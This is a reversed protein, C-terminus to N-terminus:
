RIGPPLRGGLGRMMKAMGGRSMKKMMKQAQTFQKLLRNLEQVQVGSGNAIRRRRSGNIIAPHRRENPTMSDIMAIQRRVSQDNMQNKVGAQLKDAGPLKDIMAGIGGMAQMQRLQDRFDVLDFGKGKKLKNALKEAQERDVTREAEEVLTLVDGKGLIRSAIREPHFRELADLKEGVGLFQIPKGTVERISLAAGGRADGDAKTLVVGTLPLTEDFTRAVNVADQGAMADAVFLTEAPEIAAHIRKIEDMLEGDVHLRGATDVILVDVMRRRADELAARAIKVPDDSQPRISEAGVQAAVRELQDIAAPRYVDASVLLSKKNRERALWGALKAVTTTKGAGQLGAMLIVTPPSTRTPFEGSDGGLVATLEEHVAKVLVQGPNLSRVVERGLARVRIRDILTKVVPLAVDAELLARRVDRLADAINDETLRGRGRLKNLSHSLRDSLQDFM